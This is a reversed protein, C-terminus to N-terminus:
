ITTYKKIYEKGNRLLRSLSIPICCYNSGFWTELDNYDLLFYWKIVLEICKDRYDLFTICTHLGDSAEKINFRYSTM